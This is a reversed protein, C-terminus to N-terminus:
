WTSTRTTRNQSPRDTLRASPCWLPCRAPAPVRWWILQPNQRPLSTGTGELRNTTLSAAAQHVTPANPAIHGVPVYYGREGDVALSIGALALAMKDLATGETDFAIAAASELRQVLAALAAETDIVEFPVVEAPPAQQEAVEFMSMQQGPAVFPGPKPLRDILSRFELERFLAEADEYVYDHAVCAALDLTVPV